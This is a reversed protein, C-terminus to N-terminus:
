VSLWHGFSRQQTANMVTSVWGEGTHDVVPLRLGQFEEAWRLATNNKARQQEIM